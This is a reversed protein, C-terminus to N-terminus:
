FGGGFFDFVSLFVPIGRLSSFCADWLFFFVFSLFCLTPGPAGSLNAICALCGPACFDIKIPFAKLHGGATQRGFRGRGNVCKLCVTPVRWFVGSFAVCGFVCTM